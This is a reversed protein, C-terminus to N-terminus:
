RVRVSYEDDHPALGDAWQSRTGLPAQRSDVLTPSLFGRLNRRPLQGFRPLGIIVRAIDVSLQDRFGFFFSRRASLFTVSVAFGNVQSVGNWSQDLMAGGFHQVVYATVGM